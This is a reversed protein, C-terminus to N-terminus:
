YWYSYNQGRRGGCVGDIFFLGPASPTFTLPHDETVIVIDTQKSRRNETDIIEGHGIDLRRPLYERLFTRFSDEVSAGKDGAHEYTARIEDLRARMQSELASIKDRLMPLM